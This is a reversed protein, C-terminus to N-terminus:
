AQEKNPEFNIRVPTPRGDEELVMIARVEPHARCYARTGELGLVFFATSLADSDIALPAIATASLVTDDVPWGTRPDLIHGYRKQEIELRDEFAASTSLSEDRLTVTDLPAGQRNYPQGVNVTWGDHGPPTGLALVTSTGANILADRYGQERLLSGARDAALGKGIGGFDLRVCPNDFRVTQREADLFVHELGVCDLAQKLAEDTPRQINKTYFGWVELLPGVTPDFAGGTDDHLRKATQLLATLDDNLSVPQTAAERNVRSALSDSRWNSIRSELGDIDRWVAEATPRMEEQGIGAAPAYLVLEFTAGMAEHALELRAPSEPTPAMASPTPTGAPAAPPPNLLTKVKPVVAFYAGASMVLISIVLVGNWFVRWGGRPMAAGMYDKTNLLILFGIVAVPMLPAALVSATVAAAFPFKIVVGIVGVAPLLSFFARAKGSHPLNFLECGIFGSALMHTIITSFAVAFMGLGIMLRALTGGLIGDLVPIIERMDKVGIGAEGAAPGITNAVAIIMLSTAFLFPVMMGSVLDFHALELQKKGWSKKLLSYPYLFVMNIGVAAAVGGVIPELADPNLGSAMLQRYFGIGTFGLLLRTWDIDSALAAVGFALVIAWVLLKVTLEYLKLGSAGQHYLRLVVCAAGLTAAGIAIRGGLSDLTLGFGEGIVLMGNAALGYQPIHWLVTAVLAAAAWAIALAPHLRNWFEAYPPTQANLTQRAVVSLTLVGLLIALPQVWLLDYGAISGLLVCSAITGGGLTMASQLYGPGTLGWYGRLRGFFPRREIEAFQQEENM